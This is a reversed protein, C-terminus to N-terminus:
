CSTCLEPSHGISGTEWRSEENVGSRGPLANRWAATRGPGTQSYDGASDGDIHRLVHREESWHGGTEESHRSTWRQRM